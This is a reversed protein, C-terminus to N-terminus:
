LAGNEKGKSQYNKPEEVKGAKIQELNFWEYQTTAKEDKNKIYFKVQIREKFIDVFVVEGRHTRNEPTFHSGARPIRTYAELYVDEEYALCCLYRDCNGTIKTPNMSLQQDKAYQSSVEKQGKSCSCSSCCLARGCPGVGSVIRAEDRASVQRLDIRTHYIGALSKVLERFDVRQPSTFYFTLKGGDFQLEASVLKMDLNYEVIKQKCLRAANKEKEKNRAIREIDDQTAVRQIKPLNKAEEESIKKSTSVTGADFGKDINVIVRNGRRIEESSCYIERRNGRFSVEYSHMKNENM